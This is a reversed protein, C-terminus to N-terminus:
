GLTKVKSKRCLVVGVWQVLVAGRDGHGGGQGQRDAGDGAHRSGGLRHGVQLRRQRVSATRLDLQVYASLARLTGLRGAARAGRHPICSDAGMHLLPLQSGAMATWAGFLGLDTPPPGGVAPQGHACGSFLLYEYHHTSWNNETRVLFHPGASRPSHTKTQTHTLIVYDEKM